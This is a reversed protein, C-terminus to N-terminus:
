GQVWEGYLWLVPIAVAAVALFVLVGVLMVKLSRDAKRPKAWDPVIDRTPHMIKEFEQRMERHIKISEKVSNRVIRREVPPGTAILFRNM